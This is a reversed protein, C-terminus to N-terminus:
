ALVRNRGLLERAGKYMWFVRCGAGCTGWTACAECHRTPPAAALEYFERMEPSERWNLFEEANTFDRGFEGLPHDVLHNCTLVRGSPDFVIGNDMLLQCGAVVHGEAQAKELFGPTFHCQPFTVNLDFSRGAQLLSPYMVREIFPAIEGPLMSDDLTVNSGAVVPREFSFTVHSAEVRDLLECMRSWNDVVPRCVTVSIQHKMSSKEVHRIGALVTTLADSGCGEVYEDASSGKLSTSVFTVGAEEAAACVRQDAFAIGNTLVAVEVSAAHRVIRYFDPHMTPEGGLLIVKRAGVELSIDILTKALQFSMTQGSTLLAGQYCWNCALNCERNITLWTTFRKM